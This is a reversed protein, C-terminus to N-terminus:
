AAEKLVLTKEAEARDARPRKKGKKPKTLKRGQVLYYQVDDYGINFDKKVAQLAAKKNKGDALHWEYRSLVDLAKADCEAQRRARDEPNAARRAARDARSKGRLVRAMDVLTTLILVIDTALEPSLTMTITGSDALTVDFDFM